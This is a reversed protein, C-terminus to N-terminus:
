LINYMNHKGRLKTKIKLINGAIKLEFTTYDLGNKV